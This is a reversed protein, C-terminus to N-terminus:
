GVLFASKALRALKQEAIEVFGEKDACPAGDLSVRLEGRAADELAGRVLEEMGHAGDM